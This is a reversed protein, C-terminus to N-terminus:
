MLVVNACLTTTRAEHHICKYNMGIPETKRMFSQIQNKLQYM